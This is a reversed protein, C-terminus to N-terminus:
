PAATKIETFKVALVILMLIWGEGEVAEAFASRRIPGLGRGALPHPPFYSEFFQFYFTRPTSHPLKSHLM